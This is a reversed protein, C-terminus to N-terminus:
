KKYHAPPVFRRRGRLSSIAFRLKYIIFSKHKSVGQFKTGHLNTGGVGPVFKEASRSFVACCRKFLNVERVALKRIDTHGSSKLLTRKLVKDSPDGRPYLTMKSKIQTNCDYPNLGGEASNYPAACNIRGAAPSRPKPPVFRWSTSKCTIRFCM